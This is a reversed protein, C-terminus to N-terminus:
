FPKWWFEHIILSLFNFTGSRTVFKMNAQRWLQKVLRQFNMLPVRECIDSEESTIYYMKYCIKWKNKHVVIRVLRFIWNQSFFLQNQMENFFMVRGINRTATLVEGSWLRWIGLEPSKLVILGKKPRATASATLRQPLDEGPVEPKGQWDNMGNIAWCDDDDHIKWPQYLLDITAATITSKLGSWGLLYIFLYIFLRKKWM